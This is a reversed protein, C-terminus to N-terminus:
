VEGMLKSRILKTLNAENEATIMEKTEDCGELFVSLRINAGNFEPVVTLADKLPITQAAMTPRSTTPNTAERRTNLDKRKLEFNVKSEINESSNSPPISRTPTIPYIFLDNLREATLKLNEFLVVESITM